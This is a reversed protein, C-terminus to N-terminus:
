TAVTEREGGEDTREVVGAFRAWVRTRRKRRRGKGAQGRGGGGKVKGRFGRRFGDAYQAHM